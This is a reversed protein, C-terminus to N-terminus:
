CKPAERLKAEIRDGVKLDQLTEASAQLEHATGDSGRLTVKSQARDVKVVQGGVTEPTKVKGQSDCAPKSQGAATGTWLVILAVALGAALRSWLRM